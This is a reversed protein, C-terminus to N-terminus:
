CTFLRGEQFAADLSAALMTKTEEKAQKEEALLRLTQERDGAASVKLAQEQQLLALARALDGQAAVKQSRDM